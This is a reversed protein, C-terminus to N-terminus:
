PIRSFRVRGPQIVTFKGKLREGRRRVVDVVPKALSSRAKAPFRLFLVGGTAQKSAYVLQGFDKDETILIREEQLACKMVNDDEERPSIEAIATVEHGATRLAIVVGFDCSEDALFYM